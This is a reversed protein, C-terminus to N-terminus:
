HHPRDSICRGAGCTFHPTTRREQSRSRSEHRGYSGSSSTHRKDDRRSSSQSSSRSSVRKEVKQIDSVIDELTHIDRLQMPTLQRELDRDGCTELFNKVHEKAERGSGELIHMAM